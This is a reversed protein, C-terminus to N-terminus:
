WIKWWPRDSTSESQQEDSPSPPDEHTNAKPASSTAAKDDEKDASATTGKAEKPPNEKQNDAENNQPAKEPDTDDQLFTQVANWIRRGWTEYEAGKETDTDQSLERMKDAQAKERIRQDIRNKIGSQNPSPPPDDAGRYAENANRDTSKAPVVLQELRELRQALVELTVTEEGSPASADKSQAPSPDNNVPVSQTTGVKPSSTDKSSEKDREETTSSSDEDEESDGEPTGGLVLQVEDWFANWRETWSMNQQTETSEKVANGLQLANPSQAQGPRDYRRQQQNRADKRAYFDEMVPRVRFECYAAIVAAPFLAFLTNWFWWRADMVVFERKRFRLPVSPSGPQTDNGGATAPQYDPNWHQYLKTQLWTLRQAAVSMLKNVTQRPDQSRNPLQNREIVLRLRDRTTM